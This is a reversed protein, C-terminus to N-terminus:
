EPQVRFRYINGFALGFLGWVLALVARSLSPLPRM